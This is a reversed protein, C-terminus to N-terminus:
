SSRRRIRDVPSTSSAALRSSCHSSPCRVDVERTDGNREYLVVSRKKLNELMVHFRDPCEQKQRSSQRSAPIESSIGFTQPGLYIFHENGQAMREAPVFARYRKGNRACSSRWDIQAGPSGRSARLNCPEVVPHALFSLWLLNLLIM